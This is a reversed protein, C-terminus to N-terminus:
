LFEQTFPCVIGVQAFGYKLCKWPTLIATARCMAEQPVLPFEGISNWANVSGTHALGTDRHYSFADKNPSM